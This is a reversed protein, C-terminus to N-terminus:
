DCAPPILEGIAIGQEGAISYLLYIRRDEIFIAPDRLQNVRVHVAGYASPLAPLDGGEWPKEARHVEAPEGLRWSRWDTGTEIRSVLIREPTDGVRTWFLYWCDNKELLAHHRISADTLQPGSEFGSLGDRSRYLQAPMSLGYYWDEHKFVRMYPLGVIGDQVEFHGGDKSLAIRTRQRGDDLRGHYYLRIRRNQHDVLVEPSAIHPYDGDAHNAIFERAEPHLEHEHPARVAFGSHELTLAPRQLRWPGTLTDSAALRISQGEHHAFYLLYRGPPDSMWDPAAILSPGNINGELEPFADVGILPADNLYRFTFM